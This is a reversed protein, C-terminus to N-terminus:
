ATRTQTHKKRTEYLKSNNHHIQTTYINYIFFKTIFSCLFFIKAIEIELDKYKIIKEFEKASINSHLPVSMDTLQYTKNQKHKIIIDPRNAQITRDTRIPFDWLITVKPTDVVPLPKHEYWKNPTEINYHNCIKWHIYQGVRNHRNTYENPALITCGSILHDNTETSTSCFTCRPDAGNHLINAQFNRTFLSQDQAAVIFGETEAKLGASRLWQHTDHLDVDAKQSRLPYQGHLPKSKWATDIAKKGKEKAIRKLKPTNKTNKMEENLETKLDLDIEREFGKDEKVVSYSGKKM